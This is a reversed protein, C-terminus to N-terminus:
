AKAPAARGRATKVLEKVIEAANVVIVLLLAVTIVQSFLIAIIQAADTPFEPNFSLLKEATLAVLAPGKLMVYALAMEGAKIVISFWRTGTQWRMQQLIMVNLGIQLGWLLNIWPLYNFFAQTLIPLFASGKDTSSYFGIIEPYFNFIVLGVVAFVIEAITGAVSVQNSEEVEPLDRPNWEEDKKDEFKLNPSFYQIIAFVLVINGFAAMLGGFYQTFSEFIAKVIAAPVAEARVLNIGLGVLALASLVAFVIQLVMWFTPFLQPGVLYREPLYSAAVKEPKGYEKLVQVTMEEDVARSEQKSRDELMDELASRLEKEIDARSKQPLRRGIERVYRDILKM